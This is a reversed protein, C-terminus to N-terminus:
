EMAVIRKRLAYIVARTRDALHLRSLINSVHTKVTKESVILVDAIERNSKGRAILRLVELARPTLQEVPAEDPRPASFEQMLRAAVEPHLVAENRQAAWIAHALEEPSVDKLLLAEPDFGQGDDRVCVQVRESTFTLTVQVDFQNAFFARDYRAVWGLMGEGVSFRVGLLREEGPAAAVIVMTGPEDLLALIGSGFAAAVREITRELIVALELTASVDRGLAALLQEKALLRASREALRVNEVAMAAQRAIAEIVLAATPDIAPPGDALVLYVVGILREGRGRLPVLLVAAGQVAATDAPAPLATGAPLLFSNSVRCEARLLAPYAGPPVAEARLRAELEPAVGAFAAAELADTDINRLRVYVRPCAVVRQLTEAVEHLLIQPTDDARIQSGLALLDGLPLPAGGTAPPPNDPAPASM